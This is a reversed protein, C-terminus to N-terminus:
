SKKHFDKKNEYMLEDLRIIYDDQTLDKEHNFMSSGISLSLFYGEGQSGLESFAIRIRNVIEKLIAENCKPFIVVFEDGAYRALFDNRRINRQIIDVVTRLAKDGETHGFTDNIKKFSNVDALLAAFQEGRKKASDIMMELFGDMRQRNFAGTLHDYSLRREQISSYIMFLSLIYAPLFFIYNNFIAQLSEGILIPVPFLLLRNFERYNFQKKYRFLVMVAIILYWIPVMIPVFDLPGQFYSNQNGISFFWGTYLSAISLCLIIFTPFLYIAIWYKIRREKRFITKEVYIAYIMSIYSSFTHFIIVSVRFVFKSIMSTSGALTIMFSYSIIDITMAGLMALFLKYDLHKKETKDHISILMFVALILSYISLHLGYMNYM